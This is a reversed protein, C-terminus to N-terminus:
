ENSELTDPLLELVRNAHEIISNMMLIVGHYDISDGVESVPKIDLSFKDILSNLRVICPRMFYLPMREDINSQAPIPLSLEGAYSLVGNVHQVVGAVAENRSAHALNLHVTKFAPKPVVPPENHAEKPTIPPLEPPTEYGRRKSGRYDKAVM